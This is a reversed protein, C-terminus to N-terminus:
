AGARTQLEFRVQMLLLGLINKGVWTGDVKRVRGWYRDGWNNGEMLEADGTAILLNAMEFGYEFKDRLITLMVDDKIADWNLRLKLTRGAYKAKGPATMNAIRLRLNTDTTKAAQFAHEATPYYIGEYKVVWPHFNSLFSYEGDFRDICKV